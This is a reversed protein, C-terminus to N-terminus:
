RVRPDMTQNNSCPVLPAELLQVPMNDIRELSTLSPDFIADVCELTTHSLELGLFIRRASPVRRERGSWDARLGFLPKIVTVSHLGDTIQSPVLAYPM